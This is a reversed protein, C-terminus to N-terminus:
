DNQPIPRRSLEIYQRVISAAALGSAATKAREVQDLKRARGHAAGLCALQAPAPNVFQRIVADLELERLGQSMADSPEGGAVIRGITSRHVGYRAAIQAHTAGQARM